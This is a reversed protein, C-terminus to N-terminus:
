RSTEARRPSGGEGAEATRARARARVCARAERAEGITGSTRLGNEVRASSRGIAAPADPAKLLKKETAPVRKRAGFGEEYATRMHRMADAPDTTPLLAGFGAEPASSERARACMDYTDLQAMGLAAKGAAKLKSAATAGVVAAAPAGVFAQSATTEFCREKYDGIVGNLKPAREEFWNDARPRPRHARTLARPDRSRILAHSVVALPAARAVVRARRAHRARSPGNLCNHHYSKLAM